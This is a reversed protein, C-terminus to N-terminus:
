KEKWALIKFLFCRASHQQREQAHMHIILREVSSASCWLCGQLFLMHKGSALDCCKMDQCCFVSISYYNGYYLFYSLSFLTCFVSECFRSNLVKTNRRLLRHSFQTFNFNVFLLFENPM